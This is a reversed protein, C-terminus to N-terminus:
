KITEIIIIPRGGIPYLNPDWPANQNTAAPLTLQYQGNVPNIIETNGNPYIKLASNGVADLYATQQSGVRSWLGVIRENTSKRYFAIWEQPGDYPNPGGPRKRWLPEVDHFYKTLVQIAAFNPRPTEPNPHQTYCAADTPNRFLGNADGACVPYEPLGCLEGNHPPFDSGIPQNGCGDYLQFHFIADAGAFTAYFASQIAYDAQEAMTARLGSKPDWTPGPYDNWAPVGNENLWIPKAIGFESMTISARYVHYWSQWAYFYSHTAFIDHYYNQNAAQGDGQYIQLVEQYYTLHEFNNAIAGFIITAMPDAQKAALYGVKLLRAYDAVSSDWFWSLDPENWMEWYRIGASASTWGQQKALDGGPKYRNVAAFVFKAWVNKPNISKGPGPIDSGDTFVPDYLGKPAAAQPALMSFPGHQTPRSPEDDPAIGTQYFSPTGLLIADTRLGHTIDASIAQDQASWNYKNEAYEISHWYLPWRNFQAGTALGNTFQLEDAPDEASNMFNVGYIPWGNPSVYRAVIPFYFKIEPDIQFQAGEQGNLTNPGQASELIGVVMAVLVIGLLVIAVTGLRIGRLRTTQSTM